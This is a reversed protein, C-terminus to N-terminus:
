FGPSRHSGRRLRPRQRPDRAAMAREHKAAARTNKRLRQRRQNWRFSATNEIDAAAVARYCAQNRFTARVEGHFSHFHNGPRRASDLAVGEIACFKREGIAREINAQEHIHKVVGPVDRLEQAFSSSDGTRTNYQFVVEALRRKVVGGQAGHIPDAVPGVTDCKCVVILRSVLPLFM